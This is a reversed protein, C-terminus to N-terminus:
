SRSRPNPHRRVLQRGQRQRAGPGPLNARRPAEHRSARGRRRAQAPLGSPCRSTRGGSEADVSVMGTANLKEIVNSMSVSKPFGSAYTWYISTLSTDFGAKGLNVIMQALVDQRPASMIFALAGPKLVRLVEQWVEVSLVGADWAAGMFGYGYPPDNALMDLSNDPLKRLEELCDGLKIVDLPLTGPKAPSPRRPSSASPAPRNKMSKKRAAKSHAANEPQNM